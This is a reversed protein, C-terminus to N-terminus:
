IFPNHLADDVEKEGYKLVLEVKKLRNAKEMERAIIDLSNIVDSIRNVTVM